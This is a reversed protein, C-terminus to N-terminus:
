SHAHMSAVARELRTAIRERGLLGMLEFLGPGATKGTLAVRVPHIIERAHIGLDTALQRVLREAETENVEPAAAVRARVEELIEAIRPGGLYRAAASPDYSVEDLFFFDGYTVIDRGVKLRDGLVEIVRHIYARDAASVEPGVLGADQLSVVCVDVMRDPVNAILDRMYLGNIWTLKAIDFMPSAKGLADIRFKRILEEVSYIERGEEPHWGLLAFFNLLAEPLYGQRRYEGLSTDGHRKSLKRRDSGLIMPLHAVQAMPWGFADYILLQKPTNSLHENARIIHTIQMLYDDIVNAFNYLANGDSRVLIADDLTDPDFTVDGLILDHVVVPGGRDVRLRVTPKRGERVFAERQADSLTRCRGSYRYPRGAAQAARREADLEEPACYCFYAHGTRLLEDAHQRYLTARETQRYPGLPGGIDPGEDWDIGLWHFDEIIAHISEDTSRSQDTDEIRLVFRGSEHRAFLWNFFAAWASGVHLFGSPSPAFRTRVQNM